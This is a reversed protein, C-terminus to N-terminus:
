EENIEISKIDVQELDQLLEFRFQDFDGIIDTYRAVEKYWRAIDGVILNPNIRAISEKFIDTFINNEEDYVADKLSVYEYGLRMLHLIAPIKVRTDENHNKSMPEFLSQKKCIFFGLDCV